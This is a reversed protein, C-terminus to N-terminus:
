VQMRVNVWLVRGVASPRMFNMDARNARLSGTQVPEKKKNQRSDVHSGCLSPLLAM